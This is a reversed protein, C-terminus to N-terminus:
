NEPNWAKQSHSSYNRNTQTEHEIEKYKIRHFNLVCEHIFQLVHSFIFLSFYASNLLRKPLLKLIICPYIRTFKNQGVYCKANQSENVKLNKLFKNRMHNSHWKLSILIRSKTFHWSFSLLSVKTKTASNM